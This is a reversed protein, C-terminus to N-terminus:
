LTSKELVFENLADIHVRKVAGEKFGPLTGDDIWRHVTSLGVDLWIAIEPPKLWEKEIVASGLLPV